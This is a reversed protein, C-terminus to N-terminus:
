LYFDENNWKKTIQDTQEYHNENMYMELCKSKFKRIRMGVRVRIGVRIGVWCNVRVM